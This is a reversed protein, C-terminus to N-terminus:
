RDMNVETHFQPKIDKMLLQHFTEVKIKLVITTLLDVQKHAQRVFMGVVPQLFSASIKIIQLFYGTMGMLILM